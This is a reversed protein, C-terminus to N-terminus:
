AGGEGNEFRGHLNFSVNFGLGEVGCGFFRRCYLRLWQISPPKLLLKKFCIVTRELGSGHLVLWGGKFIPSFFFFEEIVANVSEVVSFCKFVEHLNEVLPSLLYSPPPPPSKSKIM